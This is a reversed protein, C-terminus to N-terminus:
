SNPWWAPLQYRYRDLFKEVDLDESDALWADIAGVTGHAIFRSTFRAGSSIDDDVFPLVVHGGAFVLEFTQEVHGSLLQHLAADDFEGLAPGYINKHSVVHTLLALTARAMAPRFGEFPIAEFLRARISGLEGRLHERLLDSPNKSHKYFTSRNLGARETVDRATILQIPKEGALELVARTLLAGSKKWRLDSNMEPHTNRSDM